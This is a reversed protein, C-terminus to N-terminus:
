KCQTDLAACEWNGQRYSVTYWKGWERLLLGVMCTGGFVAVACNRNSIM